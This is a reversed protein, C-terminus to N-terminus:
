RREVRLTSVQKGGDEEEHGVAVCEYDGEDAPTVGLIELRGREQTSDGSLQRGGERQWFVDRRLIGEDRCQLVADYGVLLTQLRPYTQVSVLHEWHATPTLDNPAENRQTLHRSFYQSYRSYDEYNTHKRTKQYDHTM